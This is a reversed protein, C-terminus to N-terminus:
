VWPCKHQRQQPAFGPEPPRVASRHCGRGRSALETLERTGLGERATLRSTDAVRPPADPSTSVTPEVADMSPKLLRTEEYRSKTSRRPRLLLKSASSANVYRVAPTAVSGFATGLSLIPM